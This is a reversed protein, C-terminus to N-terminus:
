RGVTRRRRTVYVAGGGIVLLAAGGAAFTAAQSGNGGTEALNDTGSGTQSAPKVVPTGTPPATASGSVSPSSGGGAPATTTASPAPSTSMTDTPTGTPTASDTPAPSTSDSPSPTPSTTTDSPSPSPSTCVEGGNWATILDNPTASDPFHPLAHAQDSGDYKTGNGYLDIQGFCRPAFASVDVTHELNGSNLTTTDWGLFAQTGSTDWTGGDASYSALSVAYNCGSKVDGTLRVTIKTPASANVRGDTSWTQGGDVSHQQGSRLREAVPRVGARHRYRGRVARDSHLGPWGRRHSTWQTFTASLTAGQLAPRVTLHM